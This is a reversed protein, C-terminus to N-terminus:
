NNEVLLLQQDHVKLLLQEGLLVAALQCHLGGQLLPLPFYNLELAWSTPRLLNPSTRSQCAFEGAETGNALVVEVLWIIKDTVARVRAALALTVVAWIEVLEHRDHFCFSLRDLELRM